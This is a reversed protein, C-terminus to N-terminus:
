WNRRFRHYNEGLESSRVIIASIATSSKLAASAAGVGHPFKFDMESGLVVIVMASDTGAPVNV